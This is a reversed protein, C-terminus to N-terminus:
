LKHPVRPRVWRQLMAGVAAPDIPKPIHDNMGAALCQRRDDAMAHATMAIIPLQTADLTRRIIRTAEM